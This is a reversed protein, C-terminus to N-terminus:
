PLASNQHYTFRVAECFGTVLMDAGEVAHLTPEIVLKIASMEGNVEHLAVIILACDVVENSTMIVQQAMAIPTRTKKSAKVSTIDFPSAKSACLAVVKRIMQTGKMATKQAKQAYTTVLNM